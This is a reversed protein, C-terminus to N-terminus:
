HTTRYGGACNVTESRVAAKDSEEDAEDWCELFFGSGETSVEAAREPSRIYLFASNGSGRADVKLGQQELHERIETLKNKM